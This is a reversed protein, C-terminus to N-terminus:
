RRKGKKKVKWIMNRGWEGTRERLTNEEDHEKGRKNEKGEKRKKRAKGGEGRKKM